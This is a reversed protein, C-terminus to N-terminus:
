FLLLERAREAAQVRSHVGLKGYINKIHTKVTSIGITLAVAIEPGSLGLVLLRLVEIERESLPEVLSHKTGAPRGKAAADADASAPFQAHLRAAYGGEAPNSKLVEHLLDRMSNGEDLFLRVYGGPEALAVGRMLTRTAEGIQGKQYLALAQLMEAEILHSTCGAAQASVQADALVRLASSPDGAALYVRAIELMEYERQAFPLQVDNSSADEVWRSAQEVDGSSLWQRVTLWEAPKSFRAREPGKALKRAQGTALLVRDVDGKARMVRALAAYGDILNTNWDPIPSLLAIGKELHEEAEELRNWETLVQGLGIHPVGMIPLFRVGAFQLARRYIHAGAHLEGLMVHVSAQGHMAMLSTFGDGATRALSEAAAYAEIAPQLRGALMYAGALFFELEAYSKTQDAPLLTRARTATVEARGVDELAAATFTLLIALEGALARTEGAFAEGSLENPAAAVRHLHAEVQMASDEAAHLHGTSALVWANDLCLRPDARIVDDPLKQMWRRLLHLHYPQRTLNKLSESILTGAYVFDGAV